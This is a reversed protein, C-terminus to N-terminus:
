AAVALAESRAVDPIQALPQNPVPGGRGRLLDDPPEKRHPCGVLGFFAFTM